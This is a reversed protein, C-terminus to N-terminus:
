RLLHLHQELIQPINLELMPLTPQGRLGVVRTNLSAGIVPLELLLNLNSM